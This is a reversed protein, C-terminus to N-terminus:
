GLRVTRLKANRPALRATGLYRASVKLKGSKPLARPAKKFKFVVRYTCRTKARRLKATKRSVAKKGAKM